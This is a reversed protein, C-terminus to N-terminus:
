ITGLFTIALKGNCQLTSHATDDYKVEIVLKDNTSYYEVVSGAAKLYNTSSFFSSDNKGISQNFVQTFFYRATFQPTDFASVVRHTVSYIGSKQFIPLNYNEGEVNVIGLKVYNDLVTQNTSIGAEFQLNAPVSLTGSGFTQNWQWNGIILGTSLVWNVGNYIFLQQLDRVFCQRGTFKALQLLDAESDVSIDINEDWHINSTNIQLGGLPPSGQSYEPYGTRNAM